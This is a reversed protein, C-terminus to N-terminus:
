ESEHFYASWGHTTESYDTAEYYEYETVESYDMISGVRKQAEIYTPEDVVLWGIDTVVYYNIGERDTRNAQAVGEVVVTYKKSVTYNRDSDDAEDAAISEIDKRMAERTDKLLSGTYFLAFFLMIMVVAQTILIVWVSGRIDRLMYPVVSNKTEKAVADALQKDSYEDSAFDIEAKESEVSQEVSTETEVTKTKEKKEKM